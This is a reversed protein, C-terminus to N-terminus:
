KWTPRDPTRVNVYSIKEKNEEILKLAIREKDRLNSTDGFMIEIDNNLVISVGEASPAKISKVEDKIGTTLEDLISLAMLISEDSCEFGLEPKVTDPVDTIQIANKADEFMASSSAKGEPSDAQPINCLWTGEESLGWKEQTNKDSLSIVYKMEKETVVLKITHLPVRKVEVSKVWPNALVKDKIEGTNVRLLTTGAPIATIDKMEQATIHTSGEVEIQDVAFLSSYNLVFGIAIVVAFVGLLPFLFKHIKKNKEKKQLKRNHARIDGVRVSSLREGDVESIIPEKEKRRSLYQEHLLKREKANEPVRKHIHQAQKARAKQNPAKQQVQKPRSRRTPKFQNESAPNKKKSRVSSPSLKRKAKNFREM